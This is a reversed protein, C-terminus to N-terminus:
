DEGDDLERMVRSLDDFGRVADRRRTYGESTVMNEGNKGKVRYRWEGAEDKFYEVM